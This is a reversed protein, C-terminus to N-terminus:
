GRRLVDAADIRAARRAPIAASIAAAVVLLAVSVGIAVPDRSSIGFLLSRLASGAGLAVLLGVLLGIGVPRLSDRLMLRVVDPVRAGVALRVGIEGERQQVGFATVGAIGIVALVLALAGLSAAAITIIRLPQRADALGAKATIATPVTAPDLARVAELVPVLAESAAGRTRVLLNSRVAMSPTLPYYLTASEAPDQLRTTTTDAAIGVVRLDALAEGPLYGPMSDGLRALTDGLADDGPWLRAALQASLIVVPDGRVVEERTFARGRLLPIGATSFYDDSVSNVQADVRGQATQMRWVSGSGFFPTRQGVAVSEVQPMGRVREVAARWYGDADAEEHGAAKLRPTVAMLRDVDIGTPSGEIHLLSRTLLAALVLLLISIAGQAGVLLSRARNAGRLRGFLGVNGQLPAALNGRAGYRAPTLGALLGAAVTALVAFGFVRLDPEVSYVAPVNPLSIVSPLMWTAVLLGAVGGLGGLMLSETLLQRIIRTRSAGLALRLGVERQRAVAGALLFNAVNTCALLLVLALIVSVGLMAWAFTPDSSRANRPALDVTSGSPAEGAETALGAFLGTLEAEAQERSVDNGLRGVMYVRDVSEERWVSAYVALPAWFAPAWAGGTPGVFGEEMVGVITFPTGMLRATKGVIGPDGGFQRKWFTHGVVAVTGAEPLNDSTTLARGIAARAGLMEFFGGSVLTVPVEQGLDGLPASERFYAELELLDAAGRVEEYDARSQLRSIGGRPSIRAVEVISDAYPGMGGRPPLMTANVFGFAVTVSGIALALGAVTVAFAGKQRRFLRLAFRVDLWLSSPDLRGRAALPVITAASGRPNEGAEAGDGRPGAIVDAKRHLWLSAVDVFYRVTAHRRGRASLRERFLEALDAEVEERRAGTLRLRLLMRGIAPPSEHRAADDRRRRGPRRGGHEPPLSSVNM